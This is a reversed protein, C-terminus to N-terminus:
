CNDFNWKTFVFFPFHPMDIQHGLDGWYKQQNQTPFILDSKGIWAKTWRFNPAPHSLASDRLHQLENKLDDINQSRELQAFQQYIAKSGCMRRDFKPLAEISLSDLTANFVLAPIGFEDHIPIPTGNIAIAKTINLGCNQLLYSAAWVGLSWAVIEVSQYTKFDDVSFDDLSRYDYFMCIDNDESELSKVTNPDMGWGSFYLTINQSGKNQVWHKKM